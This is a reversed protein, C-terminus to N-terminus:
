RSGINLESSMLLCSGTSLLLYWVISRSHRLTIFFALSVGCTPENDCTVEAVPNAWKAWLELVPVTVLPNSALSALRGNKNQNEPM